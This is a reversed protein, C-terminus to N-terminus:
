LDKYYCFFLITHEDIKETQFINNLYSTCCKYKYVKLWMLM